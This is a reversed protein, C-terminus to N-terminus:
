SDILRADNYVLIVRAWWLIAIVVSVGFAYWQVREIKSFSFNYPMSMMTLGIWICIGSLLIFFLGVLSWKATVVSM